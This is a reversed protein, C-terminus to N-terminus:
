FIESLELNIARGMFNRAVENLHPTLDSVFYREQRRKSLTRDLDQNNLLYDKLKIAVQTASNIIKVKKLKSSILDYIIPYYTCGLILTDIQAQKLPHLYQKLIKVTEPKHIHNEEILPVLLPAEQIFIKVKLSQM